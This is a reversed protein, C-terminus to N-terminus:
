PNQRKEKLKGKLDKLKEFPSSIADLECACPAVNLDAGCQPCLGKCEDSCVPKVPLNVILLERTEHLLDIVDEKYFSLDVAPQDAMEEERTAMDREPVCLVNMAMEVPMAFSALCRSCESTISGKLTGTVYVDDDSRTARGTFAIDERLNYGRFNLNVESPEFKTEIDQGEEPIKDVRIKM